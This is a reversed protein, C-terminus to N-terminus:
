TTVVDENVSKSKGQISGYAISHRSKFQTIWSNSCVFGAMGSDRAISTAKERHLPGDIPIKWIRQIKFWDLLAANIEEYKPNKIKLTNEPRDIFAQKIEVRSKWIASVIASTSNYQKVMTSQKKGLEICQIIKMKENLALMKEKGIFIALLNLM